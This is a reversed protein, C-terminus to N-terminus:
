LCLSVLSKVEDCIDEALEARLKAVDASSLGLHTLVGTDYVAKDGELYGMGLDKCLNNAMHIICSLGSPHEGPLHHNGVAFVLPEGLKANMILLQGVREHSAVDGMKSEIERFSSQRRECERVM